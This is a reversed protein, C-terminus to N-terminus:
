ESSSRDSSPYQKPGPSAVVMKTNSANRRLLTPKASASQVHRRLLVLARHYQARVMTVSVGLQAAIESNPLGTLRARVVNACDPPLLAVLRDLDVIADIRSARDTCDLLDPSIRTIRSESRLEHRCANLVAARLYQQTIRTLSPDAHFVSVFVQEVVDEATERNQVIAVAYCLMWAQHRVYFERQLAEGAVASSLGQALGPGPEHDNMLSRFLKQHTIRRRRRAFRTGREFSIIVFSM